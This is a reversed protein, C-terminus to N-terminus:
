NAKKYVLSHVGDGDVKLGTVNSLHDRVFELAPMFYTASTFVDRKVSRYEIDKHGRNRAFLKGDVVEFIILSAYDNNYFTGSYSQLMEQSPNVPEYSKMIDEESEDYRFYLTTGSGEKVFKYRRVEDTTGVQQFTNESIPVLTNSKTGFLWQNRLTDNEVFIRTAYGGPSFWYNGEFSKMKSTSMQVTKLKNYDIVEPQTYLDDVLPNIIDMALAGNYQDNNGIVFSIIKEDMFRFINCGYGGEIGFNWYIPLGREPHSFERGITMKGWYYDFQKGDTLQVPTDLKQIMRGLNGKPNIFNSYWISLDEASCYVNIAGIVGSSAPKKSYDKGDEKKYPVAVQDIISESDDRILTNDMGLPNFIYDRAFDPFSMKSSRAVIEAMLVSETVAEHFSFKSGPMFELSKQASVLEIAKTQNSISTNGNLILNIREIDHLGSTHNLLHRITVVHSYKPLEGIYKRIDDDMTIVGQEELILIALTTFQKSLEGLQFKTQPTILKKTEMNANGFGKLYVVKDDKIISAAIGPTSTNYLGRFISDAKMEVTSIIQTQADISMFVCLISLLIKKNM